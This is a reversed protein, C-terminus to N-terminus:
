FGQFRHAAQFHEDYRAMPVLAACKHCFAFKVGEIIIMEVDVAMEQGMFRYTVPGKIMM